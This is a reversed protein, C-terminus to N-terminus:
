DSVTLRREIVRLLRSLIFNLLFYIIGVITLSQLALFPEVADVAHLLSLLAVRQRNQGALLQGILGELLDDVGDLLSLGVQLNVGM